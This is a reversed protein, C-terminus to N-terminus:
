SNTLARYFRSQNLNSVVLMTGATNTSISRWSNLDTSEQIAYRSNTPGNLTISFQLAPYNVIMSDSMASEAGAASYTTAAFAYGGPTTLNTLVMSASTRGAATFQNTGAINPWCWIHYGAVISDTLANWRLTLAAMGGVPAVALRVLNAPPTPQSMAVGNRVTAQRPSQLSGFCDLTVILSLGLLLFCITKLITM